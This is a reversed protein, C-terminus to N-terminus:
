CQNLGKVVEGVAKIIEVERTGLNQLIEKFFAATTIAAYRQWKDNKHSDAYDSVGRVVLCPFDKLGAAEMEFCLCDLNNETRLAQAISDRVAGSKIISDGSVIMGYHIRPQKPDMREKRILTHEKRCDNCKTGGVHEYDSRFLHDNEAGQFSYGPTSRKLKPYKQFVEEILAPIKTDQGEHKAQLSQVGALLKKPPKALIRTRKFGQSTLKGLKYQVTGGSTGGPIGVVIDGLRVDQEADLNPVVGGIGVFLGFRIHPFTKAMQTATTAASVKEMSKRPLAAIVVNHSGIRSSQYNNDDSVVNLDQPYDHREDLMANIATLEIALATILGISYQNCTRFPRKSSM